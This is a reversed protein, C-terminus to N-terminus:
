RKVLIQLFIFSLFPSSASGSVHSSWTSLTSSLKVVFNWHSSSTLIHNRCICLKDINEELIEDEGRLMSLIKWKEPCAGGDCGVRNFHLFREFGDCSRYQQKVAASEHSASGVSIIKLNKIKTKWPQGDWNGHIWRIDLQWVEDYVRAWWIPFVGCWHWLLVQLYCPSEVKSQLVLTVVWFSQYRTNGEMM